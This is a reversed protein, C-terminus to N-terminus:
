LRQIAAPVEEGSMGDVSKVVVAGQDLCIIRIELVEETGGGPHRVPLAACYWRPATEFVETTM